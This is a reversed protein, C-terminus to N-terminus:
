SASRSMCVSMFVSVSALNHYVWFNQHVREFFNPHVRDFFNPHVLLYFLVVNM